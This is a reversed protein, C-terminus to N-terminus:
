TVRRPQILVIQIVKCTNNGKSSNEKEKNEIEQTKKEIDKRPKKVKESNTTAKTALCNIEKTPSSQSICPTRLFLKNYFTINLLVFACVRVPM